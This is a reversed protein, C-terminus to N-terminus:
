RTVKDSKTEKNHTFGRPSYVLNLKTPKTQYYDDRHRRWNGRCAYSIRAAKSASIHSNEVSALMRHLNTNNNTFECTM